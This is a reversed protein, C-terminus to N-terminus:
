DKNNVSILGAVTDQVVHMIERHSLVQVNEEKVETIERHSLIQENAEKVEANERHSLIQPNEENEKKVDRHSPVSESGEKMDKGDCIFDTQKEYDEKNKEINDSSKCEEDDTNQTPESM